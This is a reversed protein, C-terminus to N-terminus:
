FFEVKKLVNAKHPVTRSYQIAQLCLEENFISYVNKIWNRYRFVIKKGAAGLAIFIIYMFLLLPKIM